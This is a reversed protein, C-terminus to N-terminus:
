LIGESDKHPYDVGEILRRNLTLDSINKTYMVIYEVLDGIYSETNGAGGKKKGFLLKLM